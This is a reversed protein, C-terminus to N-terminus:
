PPQCDSMQSHNCGSSAACSRLLVLLLVLLLLLLLPAPPPVPGDGSEPSVVPSIMATWVAAAASAPAQEATSV